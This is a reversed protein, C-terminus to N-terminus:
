ARLRRWSESRWTELWDPDSKTLLDCVESMAARYGTLWSESRGSERHNVDDGWANAWCAVEAATPAEELVKM